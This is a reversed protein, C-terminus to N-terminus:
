VCPGSWVQLFIAVDPVLFFSLFSFGLTGVQLKFTPRWIEVLSASTDIIRWGFHLHWGFRLVLSASTDIIRWGFHFLRRGCECDDFVLRVQSSVLSFACFSFITGGGSSAGM